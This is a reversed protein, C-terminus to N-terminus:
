DSEQRSTLIRRVDVVKVSRGGDGKMAEQTASRASNPFERDIVALALTLVKVRSRIGGEAGSRVAEHDNAENVLQARTRELTERTVESTCDFNLRRQTFLVALIVSVMTRLDGEPLGALSREVGSRLESVRSGTAGAGASALLSGATGSAAAITAMGGVMGGPGFGALTATVAAAGAIGAPAAVWLGVGTIALVGAGTLALYPWVRKRGMSAQAEKLSEAVALAFPRDDVPSGLKRIRNLLETLAATKHDNAINLEFPQVPSSVLLFTVLPVLQADSWTGRILESPRDLFDTRTPVGVTAREGSSLSLSVDDLYRQVSERRARDFAQRWRHAKGWCTMSVQQAFAATLFQTYWGDDVVRALGQDDSREDRPIKPGFLASGLLEGVIPVSLYASAAHNELLATLSGVQIDVDLADRHAEGVGEGRTVPDRPDFINVWSSVRDYPFQETDLFPWLNRYPLPSGVTMLLDIHISHPLRRLLDIAIVSGLSHAILVVKGESPLQDIVNRLVAARVRSDKRYRRAEELAPVRAQVVRAAAEPTSEGFPSSVREGGHFRLISQAGLRAAAFRDRHPEMDAPPLWTEPPVDVDAAERFASGYDVTLVDIGSNEARSYGAGVLSSGLPDLWESEPPAGGVGHLFVLSPATRPKM